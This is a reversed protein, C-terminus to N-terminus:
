KSEKKFVKNYSDILKALATVSLNVERSDTLMKNKNIILLESRSVIQLNDIEFNRKNRDLFVIVHNEPIEGNQSIWILNHYPQWKGEKGFRPGDEKVKVYLYGDKDVYTSGIPKTFVPKNGKKYATKLSKKQSEKPMYDDWKKGKNFSSQGKIFHTNLGNKLKNNKLYARMKRVELNTDFERNFLETLTKIPTGKVNREIFEKQKQTYKHTKNTM